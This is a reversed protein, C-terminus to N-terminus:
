LLNEVIEWAVFTMLGQKGGSFNSQKGEEYVLKATQKVDTGDQSQELAAVQFPIQCWWYFCHYCKCSMPDNQM